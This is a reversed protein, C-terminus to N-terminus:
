LIENLDIKNFEMNGVREFCDISHEKAFRLSNTIFGSGSVLFKETFDYKKDNSQNYDNVKYNL